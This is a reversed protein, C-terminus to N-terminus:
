GALTGKWSRHQPSRLDGGSDLRGWPLWGCPMHGGWGSLCLSLPPKM